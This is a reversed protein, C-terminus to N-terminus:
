KCGHEARNHEAERGAAERQLATPQATAVSHRKTRGGRETRRSGSEGLNLVVNRQQHVLLPVDTVGTGVREARLHHRLSARRGGDHQRSGRGGAQRAIVDVVQPPGVGRGFLDEGRGGEFGVSLRELRRRARVRGDHRGLELAAEIRPAGDHREEVGLRAAHERTRGDRDLSARPTMGSPLQHTHRHAWMGRGPLPAPEAAM